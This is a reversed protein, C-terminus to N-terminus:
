LVWILWPWAHGPQQLMWVQSEQLWCNQTLFFKQQFHARIYFAASTKWVLGWLFWQFRTKPRLYCKHTHTHMCEEAHSFRYFMPLAPNNCEGSSYEINHIYMEWFDHKRSTMIQMILEHKCLFLKLGLYKSDNPQTQNPKTKKKM